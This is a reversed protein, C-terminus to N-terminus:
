WMSREQEQPECTPPRIKPKRMGGCCWRDPPTEQLVPYIHHRGCFGQRSISNERVGPRAKGNDLRGHAPNRAAGQRAGNRAGAAQADDLGRRALRGVALALDFDHQARAQGEADVQGDAEELVLGHQAEDAARADAEDGRRRAARGLEDRRELGGADDDIVGHGCEVGRQLANVSADVAQDDFTGVAAAELVRFLDARQHQQLRYALADVHRENGAPPMTSPRPM